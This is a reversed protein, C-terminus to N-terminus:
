RSSEPEAPFGLSSYRTRPPTDTNSACAFQIVRRISSSASLMSGLSGWPTSNWAESIKERRRSGQFPRVRSSARPTDEFGDQPDQRIRVVGGAGKGTDDAFCRIRIPIRHFDRELVKAASEVQIKLTKGAAPVSLPAKDDEVLAGVLRRKLPHGDLKSGQACLPSHDPVQRVRREEHVRTRRPDDLEGVVDSVRHEPAIVRPVRLIEVEDGALEVRVVSNNVTQGVFGACSIGAEASRWHVTADCSQATSQRQVRFPRTFM